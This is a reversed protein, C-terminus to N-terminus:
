KILSFDDVAALGVNLSASSFDISCDQLSVMHNVLFLFAASLLASGRWPSHLVIGVPWSASNYFTYQESCAQLFLQESVTM